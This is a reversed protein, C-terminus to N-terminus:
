DSLNFHKKIIKRFEFPQDLFPFHGANEIIEIKSNKILKNMTLANSVPTATDNEGWILLAEQTISPILDSLDESVSKVLTGRMVPSASAYDSSGYKKQIKEVAKPFLSILLKHQFIKKLKKYQNQKKQQEASLPNKIGASDVLVVKKITFPNIRNCLKIIIRGGYSHGMITFNNLNNKKIFESVLDTFDDVSWPESPEKTVGFGPLDLVYVTFKESLQKSIHTYVASTAGWGPLILIADASTGQM